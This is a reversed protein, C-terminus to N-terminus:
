GESTDPLECRDSDCFRHEFGKTETQKKLNIPKLKKIAAEYEEKTMPQYPPHEYKDSEVISLPLFSVSKLRTEYLELAKAIDKAEEDNFTVTVSVQNDAWWYQMQAVIELQQWMSVDRRAISFNKEHVPFYVVSTSHGEGEEIRYGSKRLAGLLESGSDFRITRWYYEGYPFHVGPTAGCLLSVTGSPKVSTVKISKPICLWESYIRDMNRIYKYGKDCWNFHTRVGHRFFSQVIGSQSTGIRRNRLMVANTRPNHTPVLTVTKAYLYAFKLTREYEEFTEHRVPFTEVLCCLEYSELTQESNSVYLGNADFAHKTSVTLDWVKDTRIYELKDFSCVFPKEYFNKSNIVRELRKKKETHNFGIKSFFTQVDKSGIVLRWSCKTTYEKQGGKGDPLLSKGAEKAKYIRSKIGLRLLMRQVGTLCYLDSQGLRISVGKYDDTEKWGEIHGDADFIGRLFGTHFGSSSMEFSNNFTKYGKFLGFNEVLKKPISMAYLNRDEYYRWGKWDSRRVVSLCGREAQEKMGESGNDSGWINLIASNGQFSGDGLFLGLVYGEDETGNGPWYSIISHNHLEIKDNQNLSGAECWERSGDDTIRMVKHNSTINVTYGEKTCLKFLDDEGTVWSGNPSLYAEGNVLAWFPQGKLQDIRKPGETTMVLTEGAFSCPNAGEALKDSNNAPDALRGFKRATDLWLYGPEGNKATREAVDSYDMGIESFTSNNSAWRWGHKSCRFAHEKSAEPNKLELFEMDDPDGFMIEASRRVNGSVVCRGIANFIDVIASGTIMEEEAALPDLIAPIHEYVLDQLPKPGSATGGFSKIPTGYPRVKSWDIEKPLSGKGVYANLVTRVIEVWGERSDEVTFIYDGQRPERIKVTGAGKCDGGVGVGLMSMDMLFTFPEAFDLNIQKTSVFACNNLSAGGREKVYDTGMMWLGRGPPLFKFDWMLQYMEQASRQAKNGNWPLKLVECHEKQIQYTGEVVRRVTEWWEETRNEESIPRAYTRKYTIYGLPGWDPQKGRFNSIFNESLRFDAM